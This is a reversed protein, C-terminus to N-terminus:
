QAQVTLPEGKDVIMVGLAISPESTNANKGVHIEDAPHSTADGAKLTIAPARDPNDPELTLSGELLYIVEQGPHSHRASAAGPAFEATWMVIEKGEAGEFPVRLLETRKVPQEQGFAAPAVSVFVSLAFVNAAWHLISMSTVERRDPSGFESV